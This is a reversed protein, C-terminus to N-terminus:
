DRGMMAGATVIALSYMIVEDSLADGSEICKALFVAWLLFAVFGYVLRM